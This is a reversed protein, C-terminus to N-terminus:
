HSSTKFKDIMTNLQSQTCLGLSVPDKPSVEDIHRYTGQVISDIMQKTAGTISRIEKASINPINKHLWLVASPKNHRKAVSVYTKPKVKVKIESDIDYGVVELKKKPNAECETIHEQILEKHFIPSKERLTSSMVGDAISKVEMQHLSCFDAIQQFTLSTNNVLWLATAKPSTVTRKIAM